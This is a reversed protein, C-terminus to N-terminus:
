VSIGLERVKSAVADGVENTSSSGGLDATMVRGEKLVARVASDVLRAAKEEGLTELMLAGALITALPNARKLNKYKPASGHIPEFMSTGEPNLNAGAAVGMGGQIMAGLDTIIDGFMNPTVLVEYWEPNKVLWMTIADVYSFETEIEPYDKKIEEFIQRWFGYVHTLVNAKDVSTLRTRGTKRALEFAYRVVRKVGERSVVMLQYAIEDHDSDVDLGFKVNYLSRALSLEQHTRGRKARGGLGIYMDETNERVVYFDIDRFTKDRLPTPVGEMLQVPRLNVYQDFHFRLALLIGKELIGPSCRPDGVAGLYIAKYKALERLGWEPLLEGTSIYHDAGFPYEIWEINFGLENSAADLVKKGETIVEPGIGDGGIVPVKYTVV